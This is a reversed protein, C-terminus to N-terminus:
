TFDLMYKKDYRASDKILILSTGSLLQLSFIFVCIIILSKKEFIKGKIFYNPFICDLKKKFLRRGGLDVCVCVCV